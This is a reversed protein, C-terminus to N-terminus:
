LAFAAGGCHVSTALGAMTEEPADEVRVALQMGAAVDNSHLPPVQVPKVLEVHVTVGVTVM